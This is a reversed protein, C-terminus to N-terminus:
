HSRVTACLLRVLLDLLAKAECLDVLQWPKLRSSDLLRLHSSSFEAAGALEADEPVRALLELGRQALHSQRRIHLRRIANDAARQLYKSARKYDGGREFHM